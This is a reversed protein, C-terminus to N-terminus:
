DGNEKDIQSDKLVDSKGIVNRDRANVDDGADKEIEAGIIRRVIVEIQKEILAENFLSEKRQELRAEVRADIKNDMKENITETLKSVVDLILRDRDEPGYYGNFNDIEGVRTLVNNRNNRMRYRYTCKDCNKVKRVITEENEESRSQVIRKAATEGVENTIKRKKGIEDSKDAAQTDSESDKNIVIDNIKSTEPDKTIRSYM